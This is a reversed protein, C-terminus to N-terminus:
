KILRKKSWSDLAKRFPIIRINLQALKSYFFGIILYLLGFNGKIVELYERFHKADHSIGDLAHYSIVNNFKFFHKKQLFLQQNMNFDSFVKFRLDYRLNLDRRYFTGQHHITNGFRIRRDLRSKFIVGSSLLVDFMVVDANSKKAYLLEKSPLELLKDGVNLCYIFYGRAVRIGKNLADYIGKDPESLWYDIWGNHKRIIDITGDNSAGDIIVYEIGMRNHKKVSLITEELTKSGNFVVTIVSVLPIGPIDKDGQNRLGGKIM